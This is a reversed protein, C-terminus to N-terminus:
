IELSNDYLNAVIKKRLTQLLRRSVMSHSIFERRLDASPLAAALPPALPRPLPWLCVCVAALLLRRSWPSAGRRAASRAGPRGAPPARENARGEPGMSPGVGPGPTPTVELLVHHGDCKCM